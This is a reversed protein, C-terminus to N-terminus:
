KIRKRLRHVKYVLWPLSNYFPLAPIFLKLRIMIVSIHDQIMVSNRSHLRDLWKQSETENVKRPSTFTTLKCTPTTIDRGRSKPKGTGTNSEHGTGKFANIAGEKGAKLNKRRM